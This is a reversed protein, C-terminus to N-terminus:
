KIISNLALNIMDDLSKERDEISIVEDSYKSDVVTVIVAAEKGFYNATHLLAFGEMEEALLNVYEPVRELVADMDIYPGFVDATFITGEYLNKQNLEKSTSKIIKNFRECGKVINKTYGNFDYAYVSDSYADSALVMDLIKVDKSVAGCTGIRIIKEVGFFHFLEFSYIGMSPMGMGSGMVTVKKGKYTGTYGYMNRVSTVLKAGELFNEAIYKARLPDGPMIVLKAIDSNNEVKIHIPNEGIFM